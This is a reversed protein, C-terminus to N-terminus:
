VRQGFNRVQYHYELRNKTPYKETCDPDPCPFQPGLEEVAPKTSAVIINNKKKSSKIVPPIKNIKNDEIKPENEVIKQPTSNSGAM